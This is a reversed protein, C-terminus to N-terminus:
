IFNGPTSKGCLDNSIDILNLHEATWRLLGQPGMISSYFSNFATKANSIYGQYTNLKKDIATKTATYM